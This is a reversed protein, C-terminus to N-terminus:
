VHGNGEEEAATEEMRYGTGHATVIRVPAKLARLRRRLFYIYKDLNGDEVESLSGWAYNLIASRSLTRGPNKLFYEFLATEKKSLSIRAELYSLERRAPDLCLGQLSLTEDDAIRGPRRTVARIRALLEEIAYPKVLYDDAGADLGRVRDHLGDLATSFIAPTSVGQRRLAELLTLGDMEPLMRDIILCDYIGSSSLLLGDTGTHCADAGYGAQKLALLLSECLAKDDEILLIRMATGRNTHM